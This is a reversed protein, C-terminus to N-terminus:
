NPRVALVVHAIGFDDHLSESVKLRLAEADELSMSSVRMEATAAYMRSTIEWVHLDEVRTIRPDLAHVKKLLLETKIHRPTGELLVHSTDSILRFSWYLIVFSLVLGIASDFIFIGTVYVLAGGAIVAVSSVADSIVHLLASSLNRDSHSHSHGHGHDHEHHSDQQHSDHAASEGKMAKALVLASFVNLLLGGFAVLMLPLALVEQPQMIRAISEYGLSFAVVLLLVGNLFAALVELRYLGFSKIKNTPKAALLVAALSMLLSVLDTFLHATDGLLALSGTYWAGFIQLAFAVLSFVVAAVLANRKRHM